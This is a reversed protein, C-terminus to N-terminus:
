QVKLIPNNNNRNKALQALLEEKLKDELKAENWRFSVDLLVEKISQLIDLGAFGREESIWEGTVQLQELKPAAGREFTVSKIGWLDLRLVVLKEFAPSKFHVGKDNFSWEQLRLIALNPLEGLIDMAASDESIRSSRLELKVLNRLKKIWEPIKVLNGYLKLSQMNEPPPCQEDLELCGSLGPCGESRVLLSELCKLKTIALFFKRCNKKNLGTVRLKRLQTLFQLDELIDNGGNINVVGMTHLARLKRLGSPFKVGHPDKRKTNWFVGLWKPSGQPIPRPSGQRMFSVALGNFGDRSLVWPIRVILSLLYVPGFVILFFMCGFGALLTRLWGFLPCCLYEDLLGCFLDCCADLLLRTNCWDYYDEDEVVCCTCCRWYYFYKFCYRILSVAECIGRQEKDNSPLFGVRLYQLMKLKIIATPIKIIRTDRVDLTQLHRLNGLSNPLRCIGDCRRLSLYNLHFLLGIQHLHHNTLGKTDELDLLRLFRMKDSIFFGAWEGFVTLSRLHSLDLASEFAKKDRTWSSSVALHRIKGQNNLNCGEELTFVLNQEVSKSIAIERILDHVHLFGVRRTNHTAGKSPRVMSRNILDTIYSNGIEEASTNRTRRLYGEAIWRRILRTWRIDQDEPFVSLYLFPLKLHYPLGDYSSTLVTKIMGLESNSELEDSIHKNLNRWEIATKPKTALFSGVTSIALPLGGCKKLIFNRQEIMDPYKDINQKEEDNKKEFLDIAEDQNLMDLNYVHGTKEQLQLSEGKRTTVIIRSSSNEPLLDLIWQVAVTSSLDDLVILCKKDRFLKTLNEALTPEKKNERKTHDTHSTENPLTHSAENPLTHSATDTKEKDDRRLQRFLEELFEQQKFSRSVTLWARRNFMDGLDQQYVSRVLTTKGLGGIGCIAIVYCGAQGILGKIKERAEKRDILQDDELAAAVTRARTTPKKVHTEEGPNMSSSADSIEDKSSSAPPNAMVKKYFVYFEKEFSWKQDIESVVYPQETCLSAVEFQQTSVIIRSGNKRPFYTAIWDWEEITSVGNIVVLYSKGTVYKNFADVLNEDEKLKKMAGMGATMEETTKGTEKECSNVYFQRVLSGFFEDPNFPHVLRVWARCAFKGKVNQDEYAARIVSTVGVDSGAGWVAMVRLSNEDEGKTILEVLDVKKKEQLATRTAEAMELQVETSIVFQESTTSAPKSVSSKILRYRLNRKSIDEVKERLDKMEKAVRRRDLFKGVFCFWSRNELRVAFDQLCDEVDYAVDRVQKVWIKVVKNHDREDHAVMLFGQMMELEDTIFAQDRQVGLQLAVEEAITSKAYSLAGNLVSKGVSLVTAEM